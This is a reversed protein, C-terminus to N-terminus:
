EVEVAGDDVAQRIQTRGQILHQAAELPAFQGCVFHSAHDAIARMRQDSARQTCGAFNDITFLCM